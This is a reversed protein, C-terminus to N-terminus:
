SLQPFIDSIGGGKHCQVVSQRPTVLVAASVMERSTPVGGGTHIKHLRCPVRWRGGCNRRCGICVTIGPKRNNARPLPTRAVLGHFYSVREPPRHRRLVAGHVPRAKGCTREDPRLRRIVCPPIRGQTGKTRNRHGFGLLLTQLDVTDPMRDPGKHFVASGIGVGGAGM